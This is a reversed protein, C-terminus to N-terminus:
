ERHHAPAAIRDVRQEGARESFANAAARAQTARLTIEGASHQDREAERGREGTGFRLLGGRLIAASLHAIKTTPLISIWRRNSIANTNIRCPTLDIELQYARDILFANALSVQLSDQAFSYIASKRRNSVSATTQKCASVPFDLRCCLRNSIRASQDGIRYFLADGRVRVAEYEIVM